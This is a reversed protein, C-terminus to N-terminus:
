VATACDSYGHSARSNDRIAVTALAARDRLVIGRASTIGIVAERQLQTITRSVTEITLDLYDAIDQRSMSLRNLFRRDADSLRPRPHRRYLVVLQQRLCLNEAILLAKPRFIAAIALLLL